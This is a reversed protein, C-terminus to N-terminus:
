TWNSADTVAARYASHDVPDDSKYNQCVWHLQTSTGRRMMVLAFPEGCVPCEGNTSTYGAWTVSGPITYFFSTRNDTVTTDGYSGAGEVAIAYDSNLAVAGATVDFKDAAGGAYTADTYRFTRADLSAPFNASMGSLSGDLTISADANSNSELQGYRGGVGTTGRVAMITAMQDYNKEVNVAAVRAYISSNNAYNMSTLFGYMIMSSTVAMIAVALMVELLSFGKKSFNKM